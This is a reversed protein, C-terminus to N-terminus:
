RGCSRSGRTRIKRSEQEKQRAKVPGGAWPMEVARVEKLSWKKPGKDRKKADGKVAKNGDGKRGREGELPGGADDVGGDGEGAPTSAFCPHLPPLLLPSNPCLLFPSLPPLQPASPSIPTPSPLLPFPVLVPTLPPSPCASHLREQTNGGRGREGALWSLISGWLEHQVKSLRREGKWEGIGPVGLAKVSAEGGGRKTGSTM